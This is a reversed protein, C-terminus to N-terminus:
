RAFLETAYVYGNEDLSVGVGIATWQSGLINARHGDSSMFAAEAKEVDRHHAINEGVGRYEYGHETLMNAANGYTPSEHALYNGQNMDESKLRALASLAPDEKLPELGNAARDRNVLNLLKQEQASASLTTYDGTSVTPAAASPQDAQQRVDEAKAEEARSSAQVTRGCAAPKAACSQACGTNQRYPWGRFGFQSTPANQAALASFSWLTLAIMLFLCPIRKM